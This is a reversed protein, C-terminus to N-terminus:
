TMEIAFRSESRADEMQYFEAERLLETVHHTLVVLDCHMYLFKIGSQGGFGAFQLLHILTLTATITEVVAAPDLESSASIEDIYVSIDHALGVSLGAAYTGLFLLTLSTIAIKWGTARAWLESGEFDPRLM